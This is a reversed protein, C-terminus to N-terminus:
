TFIDHSQGGGKYGWIKMNMIMENEPFYTDEIKIDKAREM